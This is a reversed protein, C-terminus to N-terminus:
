NKPTKPLLKTVVDMATKSNLPCSSYIVECEKGNIKKGNELAEKIATGDLLYEVLSNETLTHVIHDFQDDSGEKMSSETSRVYSCVARQMCSTSDINNQGLIDDIKNMMNALGSLDGEADGLFLCVYM